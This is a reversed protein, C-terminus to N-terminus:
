SPKGGLMQAAIGPLKTKADMAAVYMTRSHTSTSLSGAQVSSWPTGKRSDGREEVTNEWKYNLFEAAVRGITEHSFTGLNGVGSHIHLKGDPRIRLLGDFGNSGASYGQGVGVGIVKNGVKTKSLKSKNAWDFM